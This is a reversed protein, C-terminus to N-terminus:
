NKEKPQAPIIIVSGCRWSFRRRLSKHLLLRAENTRKFPEAHVIRVGALWFIRSLRQSAGSIGHWQRNQMHQITRVTVGDELYPPHEVAVAQPVKCM